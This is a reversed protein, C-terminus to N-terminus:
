NRFFAQLGPSFSLGRSAGADQELVQLHVALGGLLPDCPVEFPLAVGGAPLNLTLLLFPRVLLTGGFATPLEASEFGVAMWTRTTAGLSNGIELTAESCTVLNSDFAVSPIGKTGPWGKGYTGVSSLHNFVSYLYLRGRAPAGSVLDPYGDGDADGAAAISRGLGWLSNGNQDQEGRFMALAAGNAGSYAVLLGRKGVEGSSHDPAGVAVDAFGDRDLDGAGAMAYGFQDFSDPNPGEFLHLLSGDRGSFVSATRIGPAGVGLDDFGDANADGAGCVALGVESFDFGSGPFRLIESADKGSFVHAAGVAYGGYRERYAGVILDPIGDRNVDGAADISVGFGSGHQIRLIHFLVAGDRGAYVFVSEDGNADLGSAAFEAHGDGDLDGVFTVQGGLLAMPTGEIHDLLSNDAGSYVNV